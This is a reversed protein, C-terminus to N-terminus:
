IVIGNYAKNCENKNEFAGKFISDRLRNVCIKINLAPLKSM